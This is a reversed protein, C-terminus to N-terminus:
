NALKIASPWNNQITQSNLQWRESLSDHALHSASRDNQEFQQSTCWRPNGRRGIWHCVFNGNVSDSSPSQEISFSIANETSGIVIEACKKRRYIRLRATKDNLELLASLLRSHRCEWEAKAKMRVRRIMSVVVVVTRIGKIMSRNEFWRSSAIVERDNLSHCDLQSKPLM